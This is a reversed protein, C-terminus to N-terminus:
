ATLAKKIRSKNRYIWMATNTAYKTYDLDRSALKEPYVNCVFQENYEVGFSDALTHYYLFEFWVDYDPLLSALLLSYDTRCVARTIFDPSGLHKNSSWNPRIFEKNVGNTIQNVNGYLIGKDGTPVPIVKSVIENENIFTYYPTEVAEIAKIKQRVIDRTDAYECVHNYFTCDAPIVGPNSPISSVILITTKIDTM